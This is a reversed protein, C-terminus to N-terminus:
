RTVDKITQKVDGKVQEARGEVRDAHGERQLEKDGLADGATEKLDGKMEGIKGSVKDKNTM